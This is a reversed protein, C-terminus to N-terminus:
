NTIGLLAQLEPSPTKKFGRVALERNRGITFAGYAFGSRTVAAALSKRTFGTRHAYFDVGSEEIEPGFGYIVDRVLVPGRGSTYLTDDIDLKREIIEKFLSGMDPVRIEAFGDDKLVHFFGDLVRKVDHPFYHELNHSCYVADFQDADLTSLERADLCVDPEGKPDIDLLVHEWGAYIEPLWVGKSGGGVNLFRKTM